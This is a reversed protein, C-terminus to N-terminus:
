GYGRVLACLRKQCAFTSLVGYIFPLVCGAFARHMFDGPLVHFGYQGEGASSAARLVVLWARTSSASMRM